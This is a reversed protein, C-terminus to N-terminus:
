RVADKNEREEGLCGENPNIQIFLVVVVVVIVVVVVVVVHQACVLLKQVEM